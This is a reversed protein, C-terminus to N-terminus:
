RKERVRPPLRRALVEVREVFRLFSSADRPVFAMDLSYQAMHTNAEILVLLLKLNMHFFDDAQLAHVQLLVEAELYASYKTITSEFMNDARATSASLFQGWTSDPLSPYVRRLDFDPWAERFAPERLKAVAYDADRYFCEDDFELGSRTHANGRFPLAGTATRWLEGFPFLVHDLAERLDLEAIGRITARQSDQWALKKHDRYAAVVSVLMSLAATAITAWGFKTPRLSANDWSHGTIGAVVAVFALVASFYQMMLKRKFKDRALVGDPESKLRSNGLEVKDKRLVM